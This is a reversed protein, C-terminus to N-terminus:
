IEFIICVSLFAPLFVCPGSRIHCEPLSVCASLAFLYIFKRIIRNYKRKKEEKREVKEPAAGIRRMFKKQTM